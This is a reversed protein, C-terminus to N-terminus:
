EIKKQAGEREASTSKYPLHFDKLSIYGAGAQKSMAIAQDLSFKRFTYSAIGLKLGNYAARQPKTVAAVASGPAAGLALVASSALGSKLFSRRDVRHYDRKM